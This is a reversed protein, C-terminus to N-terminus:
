KVSEFADHCPHMGISFLPGSICLCTCFVFAPDSQVYTAPLCYPPPLISQFTVLLAVYYYLYIITCPKM